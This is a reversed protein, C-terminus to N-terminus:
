AKVHFHKKHNQIILIKLKKGLTNAFVIVTM